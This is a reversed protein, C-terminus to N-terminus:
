RARPALQMIPLLGRGIWILLHSMPWVLVYCSVFYKVFSPIWCKQHNKSPIHVPPIGRGQYRIVLAFVGFITMLALHFCSYVSYKTQNKYVSLSASILQRDNYIHNTSILVLGGPYTGPTSTVPHVPAWFCMKEVLECRWLLPQLLDSWKIIWKMILIQNPFNAHNFCKM